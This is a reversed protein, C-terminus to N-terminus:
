IIEIEEASNVFEIGQVKAKKVFEEQNGIARTAGLNVIVRFGADKLDFAGEGLCFDLALGSLIFTNVGNQLAVEIIGTSITKELDHYIPSYPHIDREAGKYVIFDYESPHPLGSILEFGPTGVVCHANWHMDLNKFGIMPTFQSKENSSMWMSATSHADKSMYRWKALRANANCEDVILHGEEVPLELPCNPTFGNQADVDLSVTKNYNIKLKKM